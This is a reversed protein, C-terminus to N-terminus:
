ARQSLSLGEFIRHLKSRTSRRARLFKLEMEPVINQQLFGFGPEPFVVDPKLYSELIEKKPSFTNRDEGGIFISGGQIEVCWFGCDSEDM